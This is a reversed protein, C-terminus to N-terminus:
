TGGKSGFGIEGHAGLGPPPEKATTTAGSLSVPLRVIPMEGARPHAISGLSGLAKVQDSGLVEDLHAVPAHPVGAAEFVEVWEVTKRTTLVMEIEAKLEEANSVRLSNENFREDDILRDLDMARCLDAWGDKGGTGVLVMYGDATRYAEYPAFFPSRSGLPQPAEGSILYTTIHMSLWALSTELISTQVWQGQGTSLRQNLAALTGIVAYLASGFDLAAIPIKVPSHGPHGTMAMIGSLAQITLDYGGQTALPGQQGFASVSCYVLHPFDGKVEEYGLGYRAMTGPKMNEIVVDAEGLLRDITPRAEASTIDLEISRKGRNLTLFSASEGNLFVPGQGRYVDGSGPREVKLVTAGLDAMVQSAYPGSVYQTFDLVKIGALPTTPNQQSQPNHSIM